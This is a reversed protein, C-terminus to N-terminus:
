TLSSPLTDKRDKHRLTPISEMRESHSGVLEVTDTALLTRMRQGVAVNELNKINTLTTVDTQSVGDTEQTQTESM